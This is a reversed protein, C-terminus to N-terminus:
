APRERRTEGLREERMKAIVGSRNGEGGGDDGTTSAQAGRGAREPEDIREKRSQRENPRDREKAKTMGISTAMDEISKRVRKGAEPLAQELTLGEVDMLEAVERDAMSTLVPNSVIESFDKAFQRLAVRQEVKAEVVSAVQDVDVGRTASKDGRGSTAIKLLADTAGDVDGAFLAETAAKAQKRLEGDAEESARTADAVKEKASAIERQDGGKRAEALLADAENKTKTAQELRKDASFDKQMLRQARELPIDVDEGDVRGRVVYKSLDGELVTRGDAGLQQALQDASGKAAAKAGADKDKGAAAAARATEARREEAELRKREAEASAAEPDADPDATPDGTSEQIDVGAEESVQERRLGALSDMAALRDAGVRRVGPSDEGLVSERTASGSM